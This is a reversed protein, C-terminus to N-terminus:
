RVDYCVMTKQNRVVMMGNALIPATWSKGSLPKIRGLEKYGKPDLTVMALDGNAGDHALAVGDVAMLGGKEYGKQRWLVKGDKPDVCIFDGPNTTGYIYGKYFIPASFEPQVDKTKWVQKTEAGNVEFCVSGINYATFLCIRNGIIMPQCMNGSYWAFKWLIEGTDPNVGITTKTLFLVYQRVGGITTVLPTAYAALDKIDTKWILEGTNRNVACACYEKNGTILILKDGDIFPSSAYSWQPPVGGFDKILSKTWVLKGDSENLCCVTGTRSITYVKGAFITPTSRAAGWDDMKEEAYRYTWVDKGTKISIARVIDDNGEHDIIYVKGRAIAPGTFGNDGLGVKWLLKPPKKGWDKNAIKEPSWGDAKPGRFQPWDSAAVITSAGLGFGLCLTIIAKKFM